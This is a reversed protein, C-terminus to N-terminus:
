QDNVQHVLAAHAVHAVGNAIGGLEAVVNGTRADDVVVRAFLHAADQALNLVAREGRAPNKLVLGPTGAELGHPASVGLVLDLLDPSLQARHHGPQVRDVFFGLYRLRFLLSMTIPLADAYVPM